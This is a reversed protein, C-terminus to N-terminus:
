DAIYIVFAVAAIVVLKWNQMIFEIPSLIVEELTDQARETFPKQGTQEKYSYMSGSGPGRLNALLDYINNNTDFSRGGGGHEAM